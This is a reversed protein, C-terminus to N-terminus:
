GPKVPSQGKFDEDLIQDNIDKNNNNQDEAGVNPSNKDDLDIENESSLTISSDKKAKNLSEVKM